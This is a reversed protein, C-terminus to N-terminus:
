FGSYTIRCYFDTFQEVDVRMVEKGNKLKFIYEAGEQDYKEWGHLPLIINLYITMNGGAPVLYQNEAPYTKSSFRAAGNPLPIIYKKGKSEIEVTRDPNFRSKLMAAMETKNINESHYICAGIINKFYIVISLIILIIIIYVINKKKM